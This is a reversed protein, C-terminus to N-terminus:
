RMRTAHVGYSLFTMVYVRYTQQTASTESGVKFDMYLEKSIDSTLPVEYAIQTSAGGMDLMGVTKDFKNHSALILFM